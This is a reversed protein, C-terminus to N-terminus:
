KTDSISPEVTVESNFTDNRLQKLLTEIFISLAPPTEQLKVFNRSKPELPFSTQNVPPRVDPLPPSDLQEVQIADKNLSETKFNASQSESPDSQNSTPTKLLEAFLAELFNVKNENEEGEQDELSKIKQFSQITDELRKIDFQSPPVTIQKDEGSTKNNLFKQLEQFLLSSFNVNTESSENLLTKIESEDLLQETDFRNLKSLEQFLASSFELPTESNSESTNASNPTLLASKIGVTDNIIRVDLNQGEEENGSELKKIIFSANTTGEQDEEERTTFNKLEAFLSNSFVNLKVSMQTSGLQVDDEPLTLRTGTIPNEEELKKSAFTATANINDASSTTFNKLETFLADSFVNLSVSMETTSPIELNDESENNDDMAQKIKDELIEAVILEEELRKNDFQAFTGNPLNKLENFLANVFESLNPAETTIVTDNELNGETTVVNDDSEEGSLNALENFLANVFGSLIPPATPISSSSEVDDDDIISTINEVTEIGEDDKEILFPDQIGQPPVETVFTM